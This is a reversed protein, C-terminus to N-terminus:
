TDVDVTLMPMAIASLIPLSRTEPKEGRRVAREILGLGFAAVTDFVSTRRRRRKRRDRLRHQVRFVSRRLKCNAKKRFGRPARLPQDRRFIDSSSDIKGAAM